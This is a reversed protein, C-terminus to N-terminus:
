YKCVRQDNDIAESFTEYDSIIVPEVIFHESSSEKMLQVFQEISQNNVGKNLDHNFDVLIGPFLVIMFGHCKKTEDDLSFFTKGIKAVGRLTEAYIFPGIALLLIWQYIFSTM